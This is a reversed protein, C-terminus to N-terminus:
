VSGFNPSMMALIEKTSMMALIEELSNPLGKKCLLLEDFFEFNLLTGINIGNSNATSNQFAELSEGKDSVGSDWEVKWGLLQLYKKLQIAHFWGTIIISKSSADKEYLSKLFQIDQMPSLCEGLNPHSKAWLAVRCKSTTERIEDIAARFIQDWSNNLMEKLERSATLIFNIAHKEALDIIKGSTLNMWEDLNSETEGPFLKCFPSENQELWGRTQKKARELIETFNCDPGCGTAKRLEIYNAEISFCRHSLHFKGRPDVSKVCINKLKLDPLVSFTLPQLLIDSLDDFFTARINNNRTKLKSIVREKIKKIKEALQRENEPLVELLIQISGPECAEDIKKISKLLAETQRDDGDNKGYSEACVFVKKGDQNEMLFVDFIGGNLGFPLSLLLAVIFIRM